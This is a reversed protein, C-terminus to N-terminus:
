PALGRLVDFIRRVESRVSESGYKMSLENSYLATVEPYFCVFTLTISCYLIPKPHPYPLPSIPSTNSQCRTMTPRTM